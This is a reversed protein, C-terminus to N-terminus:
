KAFSGGQMGWIELKLDRASVKGDETLISCCGRNPRPVKMSLRYSMATLYTDSEGINRYGICTLIIPNIMKGGLPDNELSVSTSTDGKIRDGPFLPFGTADNPASVTDCAAKLESVAAKTGDFNAIARFTGDVRDAPSHGTNKYFFTLQVDPKSPDFVLTDAIQIDASVWPRNNTKMEALQGKMITQQEFVADYQRHADCSGVIIATLGVAAAAWLGGVGWRQWRRDSHKKPTNEDNARAFEKEISHIAATIEEFPM